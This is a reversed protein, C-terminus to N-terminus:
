FWFFGFSGLCFWFFWVHAESWVNESFEIGKPAAHALVKFFVLGNMAEVSQMLDSTVLSCLSFTEPKM